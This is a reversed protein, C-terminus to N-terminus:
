KKVAKKPAVVKAPTAKVSTATNTTGNTTYHVAATADKVMDGTKTTKADLVFTMQEPSGTAGKRTIVLSTADASVITGSVLMTKATVVKPATKKTATQAFAALAMLLVFCTALASIRKM